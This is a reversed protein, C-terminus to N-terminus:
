PVSFTRNGAGTGTPDRNRAVPSSISALSTAPPTCAVVRTMMSRSPESLGAAITSVTERYRVHGVVGCHGASEVGESEVPLDRDDRAPPAADARLDGAGKRVRAGVDDHRRARLFLDLLDGVVDAGATPSCQGDGGVHVVVVREDVDDPLRHLLESADVDHDVVRAARHGSREEVRAGPEELAREVEVDRRREHEAPRRRRVEEVGTLAGDDVDGRRDATQAVAAEDRVPRRLARESM